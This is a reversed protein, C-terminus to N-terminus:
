YQVILCMLDKKYTTLVGRLPSYIEEEFKKQLQLKNQM